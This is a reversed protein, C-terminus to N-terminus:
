FMSVNWNFCLTHTLTYLMFTTYHNRMNHRDNRVSMRKIGTGRKRRVGDARGIEKGRSKQSHREHRIKKKKKQFIPLVKKAAAAAVVWENRKKQIHIRKNRPELIKIGYDNLHRSKWLISFSKKHKKANMLNLWYLTTNNIITTIIIFFVYVRVSYCAGHVCLLLLVWLWCYCCYCMTCIPVLAMGFFVPGFHIYIWNEKKAEEIRENQTQKKREWSERERKRRPGFFMKHNLAAALATSSTTTIITPATSNLQLKSDSRCAFKDTCVYRKADIYAHITNYITFWKFM